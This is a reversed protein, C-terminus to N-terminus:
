KLARVQVDYNHSLREILYVNFRVMACPNNRIFKSTFLKIFKSAKFFMVIRNEKDRQNLIKVVSAFIEFESTKLDNTWAPHEAYFDIANTITVLAKEINFKKGRLYRILNLDSCDIKDHHPHKQILERFEMLKSARTEDTEGFLRFAADRLEQTPLELAKNAM